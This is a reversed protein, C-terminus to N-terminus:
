RAAASRGWLMRGVVRRRVVVGVHVALAAYFCLHAAIHLPLLDSSGLVLAIGTAPVVFLMALLIREAHHLVKRDTRTLRPDWPPLPTTSRWVVRLVGIAVIALGLLVHWAPLALGGQGDLLGSAGSGTGSGAWDGTWLDAWASGVADDADQERLDQAQECAEELRDFRDEEADTTDGGSRDEGVPDCDVDPVDGDDDMAYGVALQAALLAVTSWHLVKTVIGYGHGGNRWRM